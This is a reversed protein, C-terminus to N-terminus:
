ARRNKALIPSVNKAFPKTKATKNCHYISDIRLSSSLGQQVILASEPKSQRCKGFCSSNSPTNQCKFAHPWTDNCANKYQQNQQRERPETNEIVKGIPRMHNHKPYQKKYCDTRQKKNGTKM